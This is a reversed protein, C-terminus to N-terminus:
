PGELADSSRPSRWSRTRRLGAMYVPTFTRHPARYTWNATSSEVFASAFTPLEPAFMETDCIVAADAILRLCRPSLNRSTDGGSEEEGEILFKVNVPLGRDREILREVAKILILTLGKDDAAGRAYINDGRIEPEFPSIGSTWRIPRASRRLPRVHAAHAARRTSGSATFWRTLVEGEIAACQAPRRAAPKRSCVTRLSAYAKINPIPASARFELFQKLESLYREHDATM